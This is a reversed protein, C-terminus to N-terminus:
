GTGQCHPCYYTSRADLGQRRMHITAGCVRCPEGSRGYAWLRDRESLGFVTRRSGRDQNLRLLRHSEAVLQEIMSEGLEGVKAFPSVRLMFLVESKYVNGVGAMLRQNMLAVGIEVEPRRLLRQKAEEADFEDTMADPGLEQLDTHRQTQWETLLEVVPASFCPAVFADTYIVVKAYREPKQWREGPRYVHWSGTMRLHTHLILDSANPASTDPTPENESPEVSFTILLHKGRAEVASVRRGAVPTRDDVVAVGPVESEFRTVIRGLLAKRLTTAARFLTDGEPM